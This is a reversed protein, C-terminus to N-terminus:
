ALGDSHGRPGDGRFDSGGDGRHNAHVLWIGELEGTRAAALNEVNEAQWHLTFALNLGGMPEPYDASTDIAL